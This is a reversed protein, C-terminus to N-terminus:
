DRSKKKAVLFFLILAIGVVLMFPVVQATERDDINFLIAAAFFVVVMFSTVVVGEWSIPTYGWGLDRTFLGRRKRFWYTNKQIKRTIDMGRKLGQSCPTISAFPIVDWNYLIPVTDAVTEIFKGGYLISELPSTMASRTATFKNQGRPHSTLRSSPSTHTHPLFCSGAFRPRTTPFSFVEGYRKSALPLPQYLESSLRDKTGNPAFDSIPANRSIPHM